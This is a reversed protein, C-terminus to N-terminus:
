FTKKVKEEDKRPIGGFESRYVCSYNKGNCSHASASVLSSRFHPLKTRFLICVVDNSGSGGWDTTKIYTENSIDSSDLSAVYTHRGNNILTNSKSKEVEPKLRKNKILIKRKLDNPSPM